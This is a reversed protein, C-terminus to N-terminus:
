GNLNANAKKKELDFSFEITSKAIRWALVFILVIAAIGLLVIGLLSWWGPPSQPSASAAVVQEFVGIDVARDEPFDRNSPHAPTMNPGGALTIPISSGCDKPLAQKVSEARAQALGINAEYRSHLGGLLPSRDTRGILLLVGKTDCVAKYFKDSAQAEDDILHKDKDVYQIKQGLCKKDASVAEKSIGGCGRNFNRVSGKLVFNLAAAPSKPSPSNTPSYKFFTDIKTDIKFTNALSVAGSVLLALSGVFAVGFNRLFSGIILLVTGFLFVWITSPAYPGPSQSEPSTGSNPTQACHCTVSVPTAANNQGNRIATLLMISLSIGGSIALVFGFWRLVLFLPRGKRRQWQRLDPGVLLM